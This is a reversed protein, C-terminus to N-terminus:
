GSRRRSWSNAGTWPASAFWPVAEQAHNVLSTLWVMSPCGDQDGSWSGRASAYGHDLVGARVDHDDSGPQGSEGRSPGQQVGADVDEHELRPVPDPTPGVRDLLGVPEDDLVAPLPDAGRLVTREAQDLLEAEAREGLVRVAVVELDGSAGQEPVLAGDGGTVRHLRRIEDVRHDLQRRRAHLDIRGSGPFMRECRRQVGGRELAPDTGLRVALARLLPDARQAARDEGGFRALDRQQVRQEVQAGAAAHLLHDARDVARLLGPDTQPAWCREWPRAPRSPSRTRSLEGTVRM